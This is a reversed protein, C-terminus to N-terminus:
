KIGLDGPQKHNDGPTAELARLAIVGAVICASVLRIWEWANEPQKTCNSLATLASSTFYCIRKYTMSKGNSQDHRLHSLLRYGELGHAEPM